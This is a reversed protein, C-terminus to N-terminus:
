PLASWYFWLLVGGGEGSWSQQLDGRFHLAEGAKLEFKRREKGLAPLGNSYSLNELALISYIWDTRLSKQQREAGLKNCVCLESGRFRKLIESEQVQLLRALESREPVKLFTNSAARSSKNHELFQLPEQSPTASEYAVLADRRAVAAVDESIGSQIAYPASNPEM